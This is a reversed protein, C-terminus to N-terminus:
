VDAGSCSLLFECVPFNSTALRDEWLYIAEFFIRLLSQRQFHIKM